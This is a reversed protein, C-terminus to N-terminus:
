TIFLFFSLFDVKHERLKLCIQLKSETKEKESETALLVTKASDIFTKLIKKEKNLANLEQLVQAKSSPNEQLM